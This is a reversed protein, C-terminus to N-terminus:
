SGLRPMISLSDYCTGRIDYFWSLRNSLMGLSNGTATHLLVDNIDGGSIGQYDLLTLLKLELDLEFIMYYSPMGRTFGGVYCSTDSGALKEM